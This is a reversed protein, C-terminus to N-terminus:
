YDSPKRILWVDTLNGDGDYVKDITYGVEDIKVRLRNLESELQDVNARLRSVENGLLAYTLMDVRERFAPHLLFKMLYKELSQDIAKDVIEDEDDM